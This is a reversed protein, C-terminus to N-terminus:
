SPDVLPSLHTEEERGEEAKEGASKRKKEESVRSPVAVVSSSSEKM